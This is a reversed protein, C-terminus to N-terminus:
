QNEDDDDKVVVLTGDDCAEFYRQRWKKAKKVEARDAKKTAKRIGGTCVAIQGNRGKFFFVRLPGKIFEYIHDQKSAEHTWASPVGDLGHIAVHSLMKFLGERAAETSAEGDILFEEVPCRDNEIVAVV